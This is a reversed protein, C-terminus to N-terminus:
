PVLEIQARQYDEPNGIDIFYDDTIFARPRIDGVKPYLFEKEFSFVEPLDFPDFLSRSLLYVGANILGPGSSGKENFSVVHGAEVTAKGYRSTDEVQKLALTILSSDETHAALMARYDIKAFTDGNLIFVPDTTVDELARKIAGGTGLPQPEISYHIRIPGYQNGFHSSIAQAMFGTSLVVERIGEAKLYDLLIELFPRSRIPAMPKPMHPVIAELRTGRGGALIIAQV